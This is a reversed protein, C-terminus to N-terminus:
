SWTKRGDEQKGWQQVVDLNTHSSYIAIDHKVAEYLIRETFTKGTLSKIGNFILPHHSVIMDCKNAIAEDIVEETVDLTILASYIENEPSGVQLGSNDYSKRFHCTTCCFRSIFLSRKTEYNNKETHSQSGSEIPVRHLKRLSSTM